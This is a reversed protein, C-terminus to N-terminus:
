CIFGRLVDICKKLIGVDFEGALHIKVGACELLIGQQSKSEDKLEIFGSQSLLNNESHQPTNKRHLRSRRDIFTSYVINNERCWARASKGSQCWADIQQNWLIQKLEKQSM